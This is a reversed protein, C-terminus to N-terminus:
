YGPMLPLSRIRPLEHIWQADQNPPQKSCSKHYLGRRPWRRELFIDTININSYAMHFHVRWPHVWLSLFRDFLLLLVCTGSSSPHTVEPYVSVWNLWPPCHSNVIFVRLLSLPVCQAPLFPMKMSSIDKSNSRSPYLQNWMAFITPHVCPVITSIVHAFSLSLHFRIQNGSGVKRLPHLSAIGLFMSPGPCSARPQLNVM